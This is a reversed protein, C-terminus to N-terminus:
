KCPSLKLSTLTNFVNNAFLSHGEENFHGDPLRHKLDLSEENPLSTYINKYKYIIEIPVQNLKDSIFLIKGSYLKLLREFHPIQFKRLQESGYKNLLIESAQMWSENYKKNKEFESDNIALKDSQILLEETIREMDTVYYIILDPNYKMGRKKYREVSYQTDYGSVGLNIVEFKKSCNDAKNLENELTEVWNNETSVNLGYTFSDGLTIIRFVGLPKTISYEFRENLSDSNITNIVKKPLWDKIITETYNAKPEYFKLMRTASQIEISDSNITNISYIRKKSSQIKALLFVIIVIQISIISVFLLKNM